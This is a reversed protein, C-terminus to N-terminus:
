QVITSKKGINTEYSQCTPTTRQDIKNLKNTSKIHSNWTEYNAPKLHTMHPM